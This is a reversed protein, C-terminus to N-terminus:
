GDAWRGTQPDVTGHQAPHTGASRFHAPAAPTAASSRFAPPPAEMHPAAGLTLIIEGDTHRDVSWDDGFRVGYAHSIDYLLMDALKAFVRWRLKQVWLLRAFPAALNSNWIIIPSTRTHLAQALQERTVVRLAPTHRGTCRMCMAVSM